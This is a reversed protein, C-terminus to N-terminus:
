NVRVRYFMGTWSSPVPKPMLVRVVVEEYGAPVELAITRQGGVGRDVAIFVPLSAASTRGYLALVPEWDGSTRNVTVRLARRAPDRMPVVFM